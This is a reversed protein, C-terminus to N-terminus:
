RSWRCARPASGSCAGASASTTSCSTSATATAAARALARAPAALLDADGPVRRHAVRRAGLALAADLLAFPNARRAWEPHQVGFVNENPIEHLPIGPALEPLPPGAIVHVDHGARQWERALYAAYIGQGGCFMNGRYTLLAIRLPSGPRALGVAPDASEAAARGPDHEPEVPDDRDHLGGLVVLGLVFSVLVAVPLALAWYSQQLLGLLFLAALIVM